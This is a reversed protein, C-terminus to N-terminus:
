SCVFICDATCYGSFSEKLTEFLFLELLTVEYTQCVFFSEVFLTIAYTAGFFLRQIM